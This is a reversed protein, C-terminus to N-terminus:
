SNCNFGDLMEIWRGFKIGNGGKDYAGCGSFYYTCLWKCRNLNQRLNIELYLKGVVLKKVMRINGM